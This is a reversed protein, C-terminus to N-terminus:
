GALTVSLQPITPAILLGVISANGGPERDTSVGM